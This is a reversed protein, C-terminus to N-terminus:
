ERNEDTAHTSMAVKPLTSASLLPSPWSLPCSLLLSLELAPTPSGGVAATRATTRRHIMRRHITRSQNIRMLVTPLLSSTRLESAAPRETKTHDENKGRINESLMAVSAAKKSNFMTMGQIGWMLQRSCEDRGGIWIRYGYLKVNRELQKLKNNM